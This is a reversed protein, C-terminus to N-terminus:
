DLEAKFIVFIKKPSEGSRILLILMAREKEM